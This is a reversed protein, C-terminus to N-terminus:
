NLVLKAPYRAYAISEGYAHALMVAAAPPYFGLAELLEPLVNLLYNKRSLEMNMAIHSFRM